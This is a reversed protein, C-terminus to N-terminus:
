VMEVTYALFGSFSYSGRLALYWLGVVWMIYLHDKKCQYKKWNVISLLVFVVVSLSIGDLPKLNRIKIYISLQNILCVYICMMM